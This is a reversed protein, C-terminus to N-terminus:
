STGLLTQRSKTRAARGTILRRGYQASMSMLTSTSTAKRKRQRGGDWAALRLTAQLLLNQPLDTWNSALRLAKLTATDMPVRCPGITARDEVCIELESLHQVLPPLFQAVSNRIMQRQSVGLEERKEKLAERLSRDWRYVRFIPDNPQAPGNVAKQVEITGTKKTKTQTTKKKTM